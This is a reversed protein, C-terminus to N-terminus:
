VYYYKLHTSCYFKDSKIYFGWSSTKTNSLVLCLCNEFSTTQIDGAGGCSSWNGGYCPCEVVLWICEIITIYYCICYISCSRTIYHRCEVYYIGLVWCMISHVCTSPTISYITQNKGAIDANSYLYLTHKSFKKYKIIYTSCYTYILSQSLLIKISTCYM